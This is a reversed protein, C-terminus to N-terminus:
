EEPLEGPQEEEQGKTYFKDTGTIGLDKNAGTLEEDQYINLYPLVEELIERSINQAYYSHDQEESNPEDVICYILVQPNDYPAFGAYSVLYNSNGRPLKEATGTKGGMSYGDVKAHKATGSTVTNYLYQKLINSTSESITQKLLTPKTTSVTKGDADLVKEVLYPQYYKGGNIVSAFASAMQIMTANYNQGFANTAMDVKTMNEETYILGSTNAEGPLDIGTKQGFHFISQYKSFTDTGLLYTMQMISDNCSDMLTKELTEIGHGRTNVCSIKHGGIEEHGDCVFTMETNLKGTELGGAITFPKQVSGPEYTESVCYNRWIKNLEALIQENTAEAKEEETMIGTLDRPNNLDFTPYQAMALIAGTNPDMIIIATNLSGDGEKFNDRYTDNFEKIKKEVISQINADITTVLTKGDTPAIVTKEFDSDSNLYGYERGNVGNLINNYYNELGITGVNGSSVFGIVSSALSNFPYHRQYEKEFWIGRINPNIKNGKEDVAEQLNIFPQIEDYSLKKKLIIYKSDPRNKLNNRLEEASLDPFCQLLAEITPEVYKRVVEGNVKTSANMVSCDMIVNYVAVSTALVTGNSDLIDGRQYPITASDYSQMSLVKEKYKEGSTYNIYMLRGILACFLFTIGTFLWMLKVRMGKSFKHAPKKKKIVEKAM